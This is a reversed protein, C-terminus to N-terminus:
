MKIIKEQIILGDGKNIRVFYVGDPYHDINLEFLDSELVSFYIPQGLSNFMEITESGNLFDTKITLKGTTPNPFLKLGSNMELVNDFGICANVSQTIMALNNCGNLDTGSVSYTTTLTSNHIVYSNNSGNDWTYINAGTVTLTATEGECILPSSSTVTLNPLPNVTITKSTSSKCNNADTGVVSYITTATPTLSVVNGQSGDSWTYTQASGNVFQTISLGACISNYGTIALTPLPHVTLLVTASNASTCGSATGSVSYTTSVSPNVISTGGSFTYTSAGSPNLTFTEGLCISSNNSLTITPLPTASITFVSTGNCGLSSTGAIAYSYVSAATPTITISPGNSANNWTYTSAGNATLTVTQGACLLSDSSMVTVNPNPNVSISFSVVDKCNASNNGVLSYVTSLTPTFVQNAGTTLGPFLTYTLAGSASISLSQGSCVLTGSPSATITAPTTCDSLKVVWGDEGLPALSYTGPGPDLDLGTGYPWIGSFIVDDFPDLAIGRGLEYGNAGFRQASVFAGSANLRSVFVDQVNSWLTFTGVGPDFDGVASFAGTTYAEGSSSVVLDYAEDGGTGGLQSAWIFTGSSSYKSVFIDTSGFTNLTYTSASPDFDTLGWFGGAVYINGSADLDMGYVRDQLSGGIQKAWLFNGSSDVKMFFADDWSTTASVTTVATGPDFDVFHNFFGGIALNQSGDVALSTGREMGLGGIRKAWVFNGSSNLKSIFLDTGGASSLTYTASGPDFDATASFHGTTYVSGVADVAISLGEENVLGGLQRAWVFNGNPDIKLVFVDSNGYSTLFYPTLSFTSQFNVTGSFYGTVYVNGAADTCVDYGSDHGAGSNKICRYVWQHTGALNLKSIFIGYYNALSVAAVGPGPDFDVFGIYSGTTIVNGSQDTAVGEVDAASNNGAFRKAWMLNQSQCLTVLLLFYV